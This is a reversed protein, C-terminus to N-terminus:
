QNEKTPWLPETTDITADRQFQIIKAETDAIERQHQAIERKLRAVVADHQTMAVDFDGHMRKAMAEYESRRRRESESARRVVLLAVLLLSVMFVFGGPGM